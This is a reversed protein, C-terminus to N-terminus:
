QQIVNSAFLTESLAHVLKKTATKIKITRLYDDKKWERDNKTEIMEKNVSNVLCYLKENSKTEKVREKRAPQTQKSKLKTSQDIESGTSQDDAENAKKLKAAGETTKTKSLDAKKANRRDFQDKRM